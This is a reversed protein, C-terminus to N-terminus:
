EVGLVLRALPWIALLQSLQYHAYDFVVPVCVSDFFDSFAM